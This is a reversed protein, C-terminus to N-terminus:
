YYFGAWILAVISIAFIVGMVIINTFASKYVPSARNIKSFLIACCKAIALLSALAYICFAIVLVTQTTALGVIILISAVLILLDTLQKLGFPTFYRAILNQKKAIAM